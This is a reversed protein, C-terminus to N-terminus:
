RVAATGYYVANFLLPFTGHSQGRFTIEPGFLFLKGEGVDAELMSAGGELKEQGWAWGSV